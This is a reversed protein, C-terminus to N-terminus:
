RVTNFGARGRASRGFSGGRHPCSGVLSGVGTSRFIDNLQLMAMDCRVGDCHSAINRLEALQAAMQASFHNLQVTQGLHFYPDRALALDRSPGKPMEVRFFSLPYKEFDQPSGQVSWIRTDPGEHLRTGYPERRFRSVVGFRTACSKASATSSPGPASERTPFMPPLPIRRASWMKRNEAPCLATSVPSACSDDACHAPVGRKAALNGNALRRRIRPRRACGMEQEPVDALKILRKQKASLEELWAWTNIECLHPHPRSPRQACNLNESTAMLMKIRLSHRVDLFLRGATGM